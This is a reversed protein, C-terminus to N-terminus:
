TSGVSPVLDSGGPGGMAILANDAATVAPMNLKFLATLSQIAPDPLASEYSDVYLKRAVELPTADDANGMKLHLV